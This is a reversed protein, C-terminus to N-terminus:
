LLHSFASHIELSFIVLDFNMFNMNDNECVCVCVFFCIVISLWTLWLIECSIVITTPLYGLWITTIYPLWLFTNDFMTIYENFYYSGSSSCSMFHVCCSLCLIQRRTSRYLVLHISICSCKMVPINLDQALLLHIAHMNSGSIM